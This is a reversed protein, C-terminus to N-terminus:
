SRARRALDRGVEFAEAGIPKRGSFARQWDEVFNFTGRIVNLGGERVTVDLVDPNTLLFNAPSIADLLQKAVFSVVDEHHTSVGRVETTAAHWWEQALLFSQHIGSFPWRHWAESLFRKDEPHPEVCTTCEPDICVRQCFGLLKAWNGLGEHWLAIQKDPSFLLHQAWDTFALNLAAPSIGETLRATSSRLLQNFSFPQRWGLQCSVDARHDLTKQVVQQGRRGLADKAPPVPQTM